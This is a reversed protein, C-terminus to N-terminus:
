RAAMVRATPEASRVARRRASRPTAKARSSSPATTTAGSVAQPRQSMKAAPHAHGGGDCRAFLDDDDAGADASQRKREGKVLTADAAADELGRGLDPRDADADAEQRVRGALERQEPELVLQRADGDGREFGAEVVAEALEDVLLREAAVGAVVPRLEVDVAAIQLHHQEGGKELADPALAKM